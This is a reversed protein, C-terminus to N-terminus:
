IQKLNKKTGQRKLVKQKIKVKQIKIQGIQNGSILGDWSLKEKQGQLGNCNQKEEYERMDNQNLKEGRVM